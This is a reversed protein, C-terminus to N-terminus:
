WPAIALFRVDSGPVVEFGRADRADLGDFDDRGAFSRAASAV